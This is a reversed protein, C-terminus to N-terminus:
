HCVSPQECIENASNDNIADNDDILYGGCCGERGDSGESKKCIVKEVVQVAKDAEDETSLSVFISKHHKKITQCRSKNEGRIEAEM